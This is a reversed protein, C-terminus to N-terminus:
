VVDKTDIGLYIDYFLAAKGKDAPRIQVSTTRIERLMWGTLNLELSRATRELRIAAKEIDYCDYNLLSRKHNPLISDKGSPAIMGSVFAWEDKPSKNRASKQTAQDRLMWEEGLKAIEITELNPDGRRFRRTRSNVDTWLWEPNISSSTVSLAQVLSTLGIGLKPNGTAVSLLHGIATADGFCAGEIMAIEAKGCPSPLDVLCTTSDIRNNWREIPFMKSSAASTPIPSYVKSSIGDTSIPTEVGPMSLFCLGGKGYNIATELIGVNISFHAGLRHRRVRGALQMISRESCPESVAWDADIDNGAEIINTSSIFCVVDTKGSKAAAKIHRMIDPDDLIPDRGAVPKRILMSSIRSYISARVGLSFKAHYCAFTVAIESPVLARSVYAAFSRASRVRNWRVIGVSVRIGTAPDIVNNWAHFNLGTQLAAAFHENTDSSVDTPITIARRRVPAAAVFTAMKLAISKHAGSFSSQASDSSAGSDTYAEAVHESIWYIDFCPTIGSVCAFERHGAAFASRLSAAHGHRLTASSVIVSRGYAAAIRVLRMIAIFDEPDYSDIEDLVLDAWALRLADGLHGGRRADAVSMLTDITAVLIPTSLMQRRHSPNRDRQIVREALPNVFIDESGGILISNADEHQASTGPSSHIDDGIAGSPLGPSPQHEDRSIEHLIQATRSGIVVSVQDDSFGIKKFYEDGTQLTLSRLGLGVNLRVGSKPAVAIAIKQMAITKGTGTSAGVLVLSARHESAGKRFNKIVDSARDQWAFPSDTMASALLMSPANDSTITPLEESRRLHLFAATAHHRVMHSHRAWTDALKRGPAPKVEAGEQPAMDLDDEWADASSAKTHEITNAFCMSALADTDTIATSKKSGSAYHDGLMLSLRGYHLAAASWDKGALLGGAGLTSLARRADCAVSRNWPAEGGSLANLAGDAPCMFDTWPSIKKWTERAVHQRDKITLSTSIKAASNPRNSRNGTPVEIDAAPLRHHSFVLDVVARMFPFATHDPLFRACNLGDDSSFKSTELLLGSLNGFAAMFLKSTPAPESIADLFASDGKAGSIKIAESILIVSLYEHRIPDSSHSGSSVWRRLMSQFGKVLKGLDHFNAALNIAALLLYEVHTWDSRQRKIATTSIPVEGAPGFPKPSGSIFLLSIRKTGIVRHAAVATARTAKVRLAIRLDRAGEESISGCWTRRGVRPLYMDIVAAARRASDGRSESTVLLIM